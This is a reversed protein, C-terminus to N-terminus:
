LYVIDLTLEMFFNTLIFTFGKNSSRLIHFSYMLSKLILVVIVFLLIIPTQGWIERRM